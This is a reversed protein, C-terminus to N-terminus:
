KSKKFFINKNLLFYKQFHILFKQISISETKYTSHNLNPHYHLKSSLLFSRIENISVWFSGLDSCVMDSHQIEHIGGVCDEDSKLYLYHALSLHSWIQGFRIILYSKHYLYRLWVRSSM